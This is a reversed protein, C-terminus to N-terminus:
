QFNEVKMGSEACKFLDKSQKQTVSFNKEFAADYNRGIEASFHNTHLENDVTEVKREICYVIGWDWRKWFVRFFPLFVEFALLESVFKRETRNQKAFVFFSKKLM